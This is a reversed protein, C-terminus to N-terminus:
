RIPIGEDRFWSNIENCVDAFSKDLLSLLQQRRVCYKAVAGDEPSNDMVFQSAPNQRASALSLDHHYLGIMCDDNDYDYYVTGSFKYCWSVGAILREISSLNGSLPDASENDKRVLPTGVYSNCSELLDKDTSTRADYLIKAIDNQRLTLVRELRTGSPDRWRFVMMTDQQGATGISAFSMHRNGQNSGWLSVTRCIMSTTVGSPMVNMCLYKGIRDQRESIEHIADVVQHMQIMKQKRAHNEIMKWITLGVTVVAAVISITIILAKEGFTRPIEHIIGFIAVYTLCVQMIVLLTIALINKCNDSMKM